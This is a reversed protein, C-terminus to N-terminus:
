RLPAAALAVARAEATLLVLGALARRHRLVRRGRRGGRGAGRGGGGGWGAAVGGRGGRWGAGAAAALRGGRLVLGRAVRGGLTAALVGPGGGPGCCRTRGRRGEPRHVRHAHSRSGRGSRGGPRPPMLSVTM